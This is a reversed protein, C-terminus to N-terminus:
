DEMTFMDQPMESVNDIMEWFNLLDRSESCM